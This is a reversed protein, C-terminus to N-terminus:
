SGAPLSKVSLATCHRIAGAAVRTLRIVFESCEWKRLKQFIERPFEAEKDLEQAVPIIESDVFRAITKRILEEPNSRIM